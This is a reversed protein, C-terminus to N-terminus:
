DSSTVTSKMNKLKSKLSSLPSKNSKEAPTTPGSPATHKHDLLAILVEELPTFLVVSDSGEGIQFTAGKFSIDGLSRVYLSGDSSILVYLGSSHQLGVDGTETDHFFITGDKTRKFSPQPYTPPTLEEINLESVVTEYLSEESNPSSYTYYIETWYKNVIKVEIHSNLDPVNHTGIGSSSGTDSKTEPGIWPLSDELVGNLEPLIRVKVKGKKEPDNIDLVKAIRYIPYIM